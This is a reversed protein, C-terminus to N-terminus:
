LCRQAVETAMAECAAEELAGTCANVGPHDIIARVDRCISDYIVAGADKAAQEKTKFRVIDDFYERNAAALTTDDKRVYEKMVFTTNYPLIDAGGNSFHANELEAASGDRYPNGAPFGNFRTASGNKIFAGHGNEGHSLLVYIGQSTRAGGSADNVTLTGAATDIFCVTNTTGDCTSNTTSNNVWQKQTVYTIRRGWGDFMFDEPLQLTAVPVVGAYTTGVTFNAQSCVAGGATAAMTGETGFAANTVGTAGNAVCPLRFNASLFGALAEEIRDMKANTESQKMSFDNTVAVSIASSAIMGIIALSVSLEVLSFGRIYNTRPSSTFMRQITM